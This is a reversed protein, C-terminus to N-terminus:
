FFMQREMQKYDRDHQRPRDMSCGFHKPRQYYKFIWGFDGYAANPVCYDLVMKNLREVEQTVQGERHETYQLYTSRM